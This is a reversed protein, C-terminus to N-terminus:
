LTLRLVGELKNFPDGGGVGWYVCVCVCVSLAWGGREECQREKLSSLNM